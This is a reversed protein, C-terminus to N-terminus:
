TRGCGSRRTSKNAQCEPTVLSIPNRMLWEHRCAHGFVTHMVNRIKAKTANALFLRRLWAEVEVTRIDSVRQEGWAPLVRLRLCTEVTRQTSHAKTPLKNDTYHKVLQEVTVPVAPHAASVSTRLPQIAKIAASKTPIRDVTGVIVKRNVRGEPTDQRWRYVWVAPGARRKEKFLSGSQYRQRTFKM